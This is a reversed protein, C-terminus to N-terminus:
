RAATDSGRVGNTRVSCLDLQGDNDFDRQDRPHPLGVVAWSTDLSAGASLARVGLVELLVEVGRVSLSEEYMNLRVAMEAKRETTCSAVASVDASMTLAAESAVVAMATSPKFYLGPSALSNM